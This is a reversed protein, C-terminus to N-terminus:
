INHIFVIITVHLIVDSLRGHSASWSEGDELKQSDLQVGLYSRLDEDSDVFNQQKLAGVFQGDYKMRLEKLEGYHQARPM